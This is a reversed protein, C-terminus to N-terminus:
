PAQTAWESWGEDDDWYAIWSGLLPIFEYKPRAFLIDWEFWFELQGNTKYDDPLALYAGPHDKEINTASGIYLVVKNHRAEPFSM